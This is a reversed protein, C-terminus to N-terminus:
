IYFDYNNSRNCEAGNAFHANPTLTVKTDILHCLSMYNLVLIDYQVM